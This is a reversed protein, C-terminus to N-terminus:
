DNQLCWFNLFNTSAVHLINYSHVNFRIYVNCKGLFCVLAFSVTELCSRCRLLAELICFRCLFGEEEQFFILVFLFKTYYTNITSSVSYMVAPFFDLKIKSM